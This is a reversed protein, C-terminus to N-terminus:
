LDFDLRRDITMPTIQKKNSSGSGDAIFADMPVQLKITMESYRNDSIIRDIGASFPTAHTSLEVNTMVVPKGDLTALSLMDLDFVLTM